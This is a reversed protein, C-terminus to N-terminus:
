RRIWVGRDGDSDTITLRDGSIDFTFEHRGVWEGIVTLRNGNVTYRGKEDSSYEVVRGDSFFEIDGHFEFYYLYNGSQWQWRGVLGGTDTGSGSNNNNRQNGSRSNARQFVMVEESVDGGWTNRDIIRLENRRVSFEISDRNNDHIIILQNGSTEWKFHEQVWGEDMFATGDRNFVFTMYAGTDEMLWSDVLRGNRYERMEVLEWTGVISNGGGIGGGGGGRTFVFFVVAALIVAAVLVIPIIIKGAGPKPGTPYGGAPHAYHSHAPAPAPTQPPAQTQQQGCNECFKSGQDLKTGCEHCFM